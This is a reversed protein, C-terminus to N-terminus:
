ADKVKKNLECLLLINPTGINTEIWRLVIAKIVEADNKGWFPTFRSLLTKHFVSMRMVVVESDEASGSRLMEIVEACSDCVVHETGKGYLQITEHKEKSKTERLCIPCQFDSM